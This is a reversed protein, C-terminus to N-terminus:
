DDAEVSEKNKKKKKKKKASETAGNDGNMVPSETLTGNSVGNEESPVNTCDSLSYRKKSKKAPTVADGSEDDAAAAETDADKNKKKKKKKKSVETDAEGGM